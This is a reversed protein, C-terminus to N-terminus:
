VSYFIHDGEKMWGYIDLWVCELIAGPKLKVIPALCWRTAERHPRTNAALAVFLCQTARRRASAQWRRTAPASSDQSEPLVPPLPPLVLALAPTFAMCAHVDLNPFSADCPFILYTFNKPSPLPNQELSPFISQKKLILNRILKSNSM